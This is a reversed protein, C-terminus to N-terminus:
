FYGGKDAISQISEGDAVWGFIKKENTLIEEARLLVAIAVKRPVVIVGDIDGVVVDGPRIWAAGIRIPIQYHSILCRGLSGNPSRYRYYIPFDKDLIQHTDRIGGDIVAARIGKGVATATMVGGWATGELDGSTDWVVFSGASMADLMGTRFTLEGSVKTSPASKVTFAFGAVTKEPRLPILSGPLAQDMLCHERLVDSIAGTYIREYRALLEDDPISLPVIDVVERERILQELNMMAAERQLAGTDTKVASTTM